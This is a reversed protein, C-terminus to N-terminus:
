LEFELVVGLHDSLDDPLVRLGMVRLDPSTFVLDVPIGEPFLKKVRHLRPNLTNAIGLERVLNRSYKEFQSATVTDPRVNFDGTLVFSRDLEAIYDAVLKARAITDDTDYPRPGWTFHGNLLEFMHGEIELKLGYASYPKDAYTELEGEVLDRYPNMWIVTMDLIRVGPSKKILTANIADRKPEKLYRYTTVERIEYDPLSEGLEALCKRDRNSVEQLNVFDYEGRQIEAIVADLYKGSEINLQLLSYRKM